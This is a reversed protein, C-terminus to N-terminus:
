IYLNIYTNLIVLDYLKRILTFADSIMGEKLIISISQLTKALSSFIYTDINILSGTRSDVFVMVNYSLSEYFRRLQDLQVFVSHQQYETKDTERKPFTDFDYNELNNSM